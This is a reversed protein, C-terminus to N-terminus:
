MDGQLNRLEWIREDLQEILGPLDRSTNFLAETHENLAPALTDAAQYLMETYTTLAPALTDAAQHLMDTYRALAPALTYAVQHLMETHENLAPALTYAVQHLMETYETLAPTLMSSAEYLTEATTMNLHSAAESLLMAADPDIPRHEALMDRIEKHAEKMSYALMEQLRDETLDSLGKLRELRGTERDSKWRELDEVSYEHPKLKDIMNHHPTCLLILNKWSRRDGDSMGEVYRPGGPNAARIHAIQLNTVPEGNIIVTVPQNCPPAPWYCRGEGLAALSFITSRTYERPGPM